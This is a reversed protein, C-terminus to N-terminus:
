ISLKESHHFQGCFWLCRYAHVGKLQIWVSGDGCWQNGQQGLLCRDVTCRHDRGIGHVGFADLSDTMNSRMNSRLGRRYLVLVGAVLGIIVAPTPGVFARHRPSPWWGRLGRGVRNRPREAQGQCDVRGFCGHGTAATRRGALQTVLCRSAPCARGCRGGFGANFGSGVWGCFPHPRDADADLQPSAHSGPWLGLAQGLVFCSALARWARTSTCWPAAPTTGSGQRNNLM